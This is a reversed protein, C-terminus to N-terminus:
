RKKKNAIVYSLHYKGVWGITYKGLNILLFRVGSIKNPRLLSGRIGIVWGLTNTYKEFQSM